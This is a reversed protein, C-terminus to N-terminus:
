DYNGRLCTATTGAQSCSLFYSGSGQRTSGCSSIKVMRLSLTLILLVITVTGLARGIGTAAPTQSRTKMWQLHFLSKKCLLVRKSPRRGHRKASIVTEPSIQLSPSGISYVSSCIGYYGFTKRLCSGDYLWGAISLSM